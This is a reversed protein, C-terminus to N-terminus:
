CNAIRFCYFKFSLYFFEYNSCCYHLKTVLCCCKCHQKTSQFRPRMILKAWYVALRCHGSILGRSKLLVQAFHILTSRPKHDACSRHVNQFGLQWVLSKMCNTGAKFGTEVSRLETSSVLFSSGRKVALLCRVESSM